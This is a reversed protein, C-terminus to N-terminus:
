IDSGEENKEEKERIEDVIATYEGDSLRTRVKDGASLQTISTVPRRNRLTISYGRDLIKLPSLSDLLRAKTALQSNLTYFYHKKNNYLSFSFFDLKEKKIHLYEKPSSLLRHQAFGQLRHRYNSLRERAFEGLKRELSLLHFRLQDRDPAALEAAASPTSARVDAVFDSITYDTEHGIASIVPIKSQFVARAVLEENFNWLDELSGGGRALIIVDVNGFRNLRQLARIISPAGETGQVTAPCLVLTAIPYRRELISRIDQLAAGTASTIVGIRGPYHPLPKKHEPNFLGERQLREKLQEYAVHLAGVGDPQMDTVYLQYVGDREYVSVSASVIVAMGNEPSFRLRGAYSRFMVAKIAGTQDKLTFYLHGSRYHNTFNSIEGKVYVESLFPDQDFLTKIYKNLQSVTLLRM